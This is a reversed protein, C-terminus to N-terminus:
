WSGVLRASQSEQFVYTWVAKRMDGDMRDVKTIKIGGGEAVSNVNCMERKDDDGGVDMDTMVRKVVWRMDDHGVSDGDTM